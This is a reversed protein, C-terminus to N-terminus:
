VAGSSFVSKGVGGSLYRCALDSMAQAKKCQRIAVGLSEIVGVLNSLVEIHSFRAVQYGKGELVRNRDNINQPSPTYSDGFLEVVLKLEVCYFEVMLPESSVQRRFKYGHLQRKSIERLLLTEAAASNQRYVARSQKIDM